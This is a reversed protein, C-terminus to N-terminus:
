KPFVVSRRRARIMRLAPIGGILWVFLCVVSLAAFVDSKTVVAFVCCVAFALMGLWALATLGSLLQNEKVDIKCWEKNTNGWAHEYNTM